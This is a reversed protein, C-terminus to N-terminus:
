EKPNVAPPSAAADAELMRMVVRAAMEGSYQYAACIWRDGNPQKTGMIAHWEVSSFCPMLQTTNSSRYCLPPHDYDAMGRVNTFDLKGRPYKYNQSNVKFMYGPNARNNWADVEDNFSQTAEMWAVGEMATVGIVDEKAVTSGTVTNIAQATDSRCMDDEPVGNWYNYSTMESCETYNYVNPLYGKNFDAPCDPCIEGWFKSAIHGLQTAIQSTNFAPVAASPLFCGSADRAAKLIDDSVVSSPAQSIVGPGVLAQDTIPFARGADCLAYEERTHNRYDWLSSEMADYNRSIHSVCVDGLQTPKPGKRQSCDQSSAVGGKSASFGATGTFVAKKFHYHMLLFQTCSTAQMMGIGTAAIMVPQGFIVGTKVMVCNPVTRNFINGGNQAMLDLFPAAENTSCGTPGHTDAVLILTYRDNEITWADGSDDVSCNGLALRQNESGTCCFYDDSSESGRFKCGEPCSKSDM